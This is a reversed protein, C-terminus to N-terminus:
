RDASDGEEALAGPEGDVAVLLKLWVGHPGFCCGCIRLVVHNVHVVLGDYHGTGVAADSEDRGLPEGFRPGLDHPKQIEPAGSTAGCVLADGDLLRVAASTGGTLERTRDAIRQMVAKLDLDMAALEHHMAIVARLVSVDLTGAGDTAVVPRTDAGRERGSSYM